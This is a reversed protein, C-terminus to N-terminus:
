GLQGSDVVQLREEARKRVAKTAPGCGKDIGGRLERPLIRETELLALAEHRLETGIGRFRCM